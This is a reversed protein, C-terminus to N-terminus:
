NKIYLKIDQVSYFKIPEQLLFVYYNLKEINRFTLVKNKYKIFIEYFFLETKFSLYYILDKQQLYPKFELVINNSIDEFESEEINAEKWKNSNKLFIFGKDIINKNLDSQIKFDEADFYYENNNTNFQDKRM